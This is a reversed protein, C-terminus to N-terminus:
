HVSLRAENALELGNLAMTGFLTLPEQPIASLTKRQGGCIHVCEHMCAWM